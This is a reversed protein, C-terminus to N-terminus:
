RFDRVELRADDIVQQDLCLSAKLQCRGRPERTLAMAVALEATRPGVFVEQRGIQRGREDTLSFFLSFLGERGVAAPSKALRCRISLTEPPDYSAELRDIALPDSAELVAGAIPGGQVLLEQWGGTELLGTLDWAGNHRPAAGSETRVEQWTVGPVPRLLLRKGTWAGSVFLAASQEDHITAQASNSLQIAERMPHQM